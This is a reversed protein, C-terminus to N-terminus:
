RTKNHCKICVVELNGRRDYKPKIKKELSFNPLDFGTGSRHSAVSKKHHVQLYAPDFKRHCKSCKFGAEEKIQLKRASTLTREGPKTVYIIKKM